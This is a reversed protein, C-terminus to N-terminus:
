AKELYAVITDCKGLAALSSEYSQSLLKNDLFSWKEHGGAKGGAGCGFDLIKRNLLAPMLMDFRRQDDQEGEQRWSEISPLKDGHMVSNEYHVDNIHQFSSLTVLGCNTYELIDLNPNDRVAGKRKNFNEQDCLYCKM